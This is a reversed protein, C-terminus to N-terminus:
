KKDDGARSKKPRSIVHWQKMQYLSLFQSLEETEEVKLKKMESRIKTREEATAPVQQRLEQRRVVYKEVIPKVALLQNSTLKLRAQMKVLMDEATMLHEQAFVPVSLSWGILAVLFWKVQKNYARTNRIWM